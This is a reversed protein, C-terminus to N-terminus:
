LLGGAQGFAEDGKLGLANRVLTVHQRHREVTIDHRVREVLYQGSLSSGLGKVLVPRRARLLLDATDTDIEATLRVGFASRRALAAAVELPEVEGDVDAPSLLLTTQGGLSRAGQAEDDGSSEGSQPSDSLAPIRTARVLSAAALSATVDIAAGTGGFGFALEGQPEALPDIPHFHGTLRGEDAELYVAYGWKAALARLFALDTGRQLVVHVDPDPGAPTEEVEPALGHEGFIAEAISSDSNGPWAVIKEDRDLELTRDVAKVTLQSAGAPDVHWSAETSLGEFRYGADGRSVQVVLPTQPEVLPDLLSAWEGDAQSELRASLTAADAEDLAEEVVVQSLAELEDQALATGDVEVLLTTDPM